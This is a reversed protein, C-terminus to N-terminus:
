HFSAPVSRRSAALVVEAQLGDSTIGVESRAKAARKRFLRFLFIGVLLIYAVGALNKLFEDGGTPNYAVGDAAIAIGAPWALNALAVLQALQSVQQDECRADKCPETTPACTRENDLKTLAARTIKRAIHATSFGRPCCHRSSTHCRTAPAVRGSTSALSQMEGLSYGKVHVPNHLVAGSATSGRGDWRVQHM